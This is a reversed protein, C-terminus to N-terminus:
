EIPPVICSITTDIRFNSKDTHREAHFIDMKYTGGRVLGVTGALRDLMVSDTQPPHLGGLDIVLHGNIFTWLDDDGTFTFEEGGLYIFEVHIETTFGFNKDPFGTIDAGFGDDPGIPFYESNDYTWTGDRDDDNLPIEVEFEYNVGDITNYWQKFMEPGTTHQTAGVHAYVPKDDPGLEDKVLGKIGTGAYSEFDPHTQPFDRVIAIFVKEGICEESLDVEEDTIGNCNDDLKNEQVEIWDSNVYPNEDDCDGKNKCWGDGDADICEDDDTDTDIDEDDSPETDDSTEDNTSVSCSITLLIVVIFILIRPSIIM